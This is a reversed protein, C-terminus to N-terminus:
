REDAKGPTLKRPVLSLASPTAQGEDSDPLRDAEVHHQEEGAERADVAREIFRRLHVACLDAKARNVVTVQGSSPGVVSNTMVMVTMLATFTKSVTAVSSVPRGPSLGGIDQEPRDILLAEDVEM